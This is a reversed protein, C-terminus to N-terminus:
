YQLRTAVSAHDSPWLGIGVPPTKDSIRSASCGHM